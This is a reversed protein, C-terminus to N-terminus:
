AGLPVIQFVDGKIVGAGIHKQIVGIPKAVLHGPGNGPHLRKQGNGIIEVNQVVGGVAQHIKGAIRHAGADPFIEGHDLQDGEVGLRRLGLAKHGEPIVLFLQQGAKVPPKADNPVQQDKRRLLLDDGPGCIEGHIKGDHVFLDQAPLFRRVRHVKGVVAHPVAHEPRLRALAPPGIQQAQRHPGHVRFGIHHLLHQQDDPNEGNQEAVDNDMPNGLLDVPGNVHQAAPELLLGLQRKGALLEGDDLFGEIKQFGLHVGHFLHDAVVLAHQELPGDDLEQAPVVGGIILNEFGQGKAAAAQLPLAEAHDDGGKVPRNELRQKQLFPLVERFLGPLKQFVPKGCRADRLNGDDVRIVLHHGNEVQGLFFVAGEAVLRRLQRCFEAILQMDLGVM